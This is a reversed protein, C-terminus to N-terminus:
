SIPKAPEVLLHLWNLWGGLWSLAALRWQSSSLSLSLSRTPPLVSLQRGLKASVLWLDEAKIELWGARTAM